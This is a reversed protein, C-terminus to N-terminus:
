ILDWTYDTDMQVEIEFCSNDWVKCSDVGAICKDWTADFIDLVFPAGISNHPILTSPVTYVESCQQSNNAVDLKEVQLTHTYVNPTAPNTGNERLGVKFSLWNYSDSENCFSSRSPASKLVFRLRLQSDTLFDGETVGSGIGPASKPVFVGLTRNDIDSRFHVPGWGHDSLEGKGIAPFRHYDEVAGVQTNLGTSNCSLNEDGIPNSPLTIIDKLDNSSQKSNEKGCSSIFVLCIFLITGSRQNM